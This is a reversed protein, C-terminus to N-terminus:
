LFYKKGVLSGGLYYVRDVSTEAIRGVWTGMLWALNQGTCFSAALRETSITVWLVWNFLLVPVDLKSAAIVKVRLSCLNFWIAWQSVGHVTSSSSLDRPSTLHCSPQRCPDLNASYASGKSLSVAVSPGSSSSITPVSIAANQFVWSIRFSGNTFEIDHAPHVGQITVPASPCRSGFKLQPSEGVINQSRDGCWTM